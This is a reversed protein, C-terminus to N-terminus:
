FTLPFILHFLLQIELCQYLVATSNSLIIPNAHFKPSMNNEALDPIRFSSKAQYSPHRITVLHSVWKELRLRERSM